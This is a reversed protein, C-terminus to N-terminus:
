WRRLPPLLRRLRRLRLLLLLGVRPCRHRLPQPPLLLGFGLLDLASPACGRLTVRGSLLHRRGRVRVCRM